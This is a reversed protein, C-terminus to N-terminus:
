LWVVKLHISTKYDKFFLFPNINEDKWKWKNGASTTTKSATIKWNTWAGQAELVELFEKKKGVVKKYSVWSM